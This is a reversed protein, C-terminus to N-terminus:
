KTPLQSLKVDITDIFDLLEDLEQRRYLAEISSGYMWFNKRREIEKLLKDLLRGKDIM